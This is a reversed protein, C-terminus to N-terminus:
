LNIYIMNARRLQINVYGEVIEPNGFSSALCWHAPAVWAPFTVTWTIYKTEWPQLTYSIERMGDFEWTFRAYTKFDYSGDFAAASCVPRMGPYPAIGDRLNQNVIQVTAEDNRMKYTFDVKQESTVGRLKLTSSWRSWRQVQVNVNALAAEAIWSSSIMYFFTLAGIFSQKLIKSTKM